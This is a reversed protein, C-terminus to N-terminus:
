EVKFASTGKDQGTSNGSAGTSLTLSMERNPGLSVVAPFCGEGRIVLINVKLLLMLRVLIKDVFSNEKKGNGASIFFYKM